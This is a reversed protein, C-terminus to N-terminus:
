TMTLKDDKREEPVLGYEEQIAEHQVKETARRQAKWAERAEREKAALRARENRTPEWKSKLIRRVAEKSIHFKEALIPTSFRGPDIQHLSRMSEMAERSVKRPPAWGEPFKRKMTERHAAYEQPTRKHEPKTPYPRHPLPRSSTSAEDQSEETEDFGEKLPAPWDEEEDEVVPRPAPHAGTKWHNRTLEAVTKYFNVHAIRASPACIARSKISRLASLM